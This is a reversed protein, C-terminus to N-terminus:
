QDPISSPSPAEATPRLESKAHRGIRGEALAVGALILATGAIVNWTLPSITLIAAASARSQPRFLSAVLVVILLILFVVRLYVSTGAKM